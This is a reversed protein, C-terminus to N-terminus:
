TAHSVETPATHNSPRPALNSFGDIWRPYMSREINIVARKWEESNVFLRDIDADMEALHQEEEALIGRVSVPNGASKLCNQYVSYIQDARHEIAYTVLVYARRKLQARSLDLKSQLLRSIRYDLRHIYEFSRRGNILYPASYDPCAGVVLKNIQRKLYYAHRTEEAAHKLIFETTCFHGSSQVIKRAGINEMLSLTNLWRCHLQDNGIITNLLRGLQDTRGTTM